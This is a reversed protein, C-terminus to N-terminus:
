QKRWVLSYRWFLHRRLSYGPIVTNAVEKIQSLSLQARRTPATTMPVPKAAKYRILYVYNLPVSVLSYIYDAITREQYLGLVVLTGSPRLIAKMKTLTKALDMHHLSAIASISDYSEIPIDIDLFDSHVYRINPPNNLRSAEAIITSDADIADVGVAREALKRAFAGLGCGVDLASQISQPIYSLLYRHFHTNHNWQDTYQSM